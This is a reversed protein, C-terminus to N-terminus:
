PHPHEKEISTTLFRIYSDWTYTDAFATIAAPSILPRDTSIVRDLIPMLEGFDAYTLVIGADKQFDLFNGLAPGIVTKGFSLSEVLAGSSLTSQSNHTFLICKSRSIMRGLEDQDIYTDSVTIRGGAYRKINEWLAPHACEGQIHITYRDKLGNADLYQLFADIGKYPEIRGWILIDYLGAAAEGTTADGATAGGAPPAPRFPHPFYRIKSQDSGFVETGSKAHAVILDAYRFLLRSLLKTFRINKNTHSKKNHVTWVLKVKFPKLLPLVCILAVGKLYGFKSNVSEEVWNCVLLDMTRLQFFFDVPGLWATKSRVIRYGRREFAAVLDKIYPNQNKNKVYSKDPYIYVSAM